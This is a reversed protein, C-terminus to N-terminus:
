EEAAKQKELDAAAKAKLLEIVEEVKYFYLEEEFIGIPQPDVSMITELAPHAERTNIVMYHVGRAKSFYLEGLRYSEFIFNTLGKRNHYILTQNPAPGPICLVREEKTIGLSQQFAELADRKFYATSMGMMRDDKILYSSKMRQDSQNISININVFALFALFVQYYWKPSYSALLYFFAGSILIPLAMLDIFYYNHIKLQQLFLVIYAISGLISFILFLNFFKPLKRFNLLVFALMVLLLQTGEKCFLYMGIQNWIHNLTSRINEGTMEWGPLITTLFIHSDHITNYHKAWFLWGVSGVLVLFFGGLVHKAAPFYKSLDEQKKLPWLLILYSCFWAFFSILTTVKLTGALLMFVIALYFFLLRKQQIFVLYFAASLFVLGIAVTNPLFNFSYFAMSFAGLPLFPILTALFINKFVRLLAFSLGLMGLLLVTLHFIRMISYDFGFIKWLMADIYYLGPFESVAHREPSHYNHVKPEWFGQGEYYNIAISLGDAQRWGHWSCPGYHAISAYDYKLLLFVAMILWCLLLLGKNSPLSKAASVNIDKLNPKSM